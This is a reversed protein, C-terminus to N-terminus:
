ARHRGPRTTRRSSGQVGSGAAIRDLAEQLKRLVIAGPDVKKVSKLTHKGVFAQRGGPEGEVKVIIFDEAIFKVRGRVALEVKDGPKLGEFKNM